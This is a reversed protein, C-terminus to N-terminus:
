NRKCVLFLSRSVCNEDDDSVCSDDDTARHLFSLVGGPKSSQSTYKDCSSTPHSPLKNQMDEDIQNFRVQCLGNVQVDANNKHSGPCPSLAALETEDAQEKCLRSDKFHKSTHKEKSHTRLTTKKHSSSSKNRKKEPLFHRKVAIHQPSSLVHKKDCSNRKRKMSRTIQKEHEAMSKTRKRYEKRAGFAVETEKLSMVTIEDNGGINEQSFVVNSRTSQQTISNGQSVCNKDEVLLSDEKYKFLPVKVVVEKADVTGKTGM